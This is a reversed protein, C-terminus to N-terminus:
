ERPLGRRSRAYNRHQQEAAVREAAINDMRADLGNVTVRASTIRVELPTSSSSGGGNVRGGSNFGPLIKNLDLGGNIAALYRDNLRSARENIIWEGSRVALARGHQDRALVNDKRPDSPPAGPVKGGAAFRAMAGAGVIDGVRGGTFGGGILSAGPGRTGVYVSAEQSNIWSLLERTTARAKTDKAGVPVERDEKSEKDLNAFYAKIERDSFGQLKLSAIVEKRDAKGMADVVADISKTSWGMLKLVSRVEKPTLRAARAVKVADAEAKPAGETKFKLVTEQPVKTKLAISGAQLFEKTGGIFGPEDGGLHNRGKPGSLGLNRLMGEWESNVKHIGNLLDTVDQIPGRLPSQAGTGAGITTWANKLKDLDGKLTDTKKAAVDAAYGADDVQKTWTKIGDGGEKYLVNAARVADSGFITALAANREADSKGKFAKELQGAVTALGVFNGKSDYASINLAKMLRAAEGTPAQLRQLMTKMSTGADSGLLGAKAFAALAGTTEEISAGAGAAVLGAQNLAMGLDAVDGNAKGAGAALLDAIHPVDKGSLSFQAMASSATEAAAAVEMEGAAALDLAGTLGGGIVDRASLGAKLLAEMGATAETASYTTTRGMQLAQRKLLEMQAATAAGTANVNALGQEFDAASKVMSAVTAGAALGVGRYSLGLASLARGSKSAGSQITKDFDAIQGKALRVKNQFDRVEARIRVTLDRTM